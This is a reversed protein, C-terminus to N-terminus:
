GLLRLADERRRRTRARRRRLRRSGDEWSVAEQPNRRQHEMLAHLWLRQHIWNDWMM